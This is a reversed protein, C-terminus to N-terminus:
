FPLMKACQFKAPELIKAFRLESCFNSLTHSDVQRKAMAKIISTKFHKNNYAYVAFKNIEPLVSARGQKEKESRFLM